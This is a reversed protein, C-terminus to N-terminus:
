AALFKTLSLTHVGDKSEYDIEDALTQILYLGYGGEALAEPPPAEPPSRRPDFPRGRARLRVTLSEGYWEMFVGIGDEVPQIDGHEILNTAAEQLALKLEHVDKSEGRDPAVSAVFDAFESGLRRLAPFSADITFDREDLASRSPNAQAM